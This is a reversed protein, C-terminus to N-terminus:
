WVNWMKIFTNNKQNKTTLVKPNKSETNKRCKFLVIVNNWLYVLIKSSSILDKLKQNRRETQWM